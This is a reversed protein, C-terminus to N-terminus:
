SRGAPRYVNVQAGTKATASSVLEWSRLGGDAPFVSKGGGLLVPMVVLRLEDVLGAAILARVLTPSGMMALDGGETARLERVTELARAGPIRVTNEWSLESEGLTDSVVYKKMSNLRDAFPDGAREPWAAAMTLYTRRGYLLAEAKELGAAFAGGVVEPDFFPHSWGGHAFGGDTDEEPGGPAQVVGDLSIFETVVVRM